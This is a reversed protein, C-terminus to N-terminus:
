GAALLFDVDVEGRACCEDLWRISRSYMGTGLCTAKAMQRHTEIDEDVFAKRSHVVVGSVHGGEEATM